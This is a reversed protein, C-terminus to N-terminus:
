PPATVAPLLAQFPLPAARENLNLARPRLAPAHHPCAPFDRRERTRLSQNSSLRQTPHLFEARPLGATTDMQHAQGGSCRLRKKNELLFKSRLLVIRSLVTLVSSLLTSLPGNADDLVPFALWCAASTM